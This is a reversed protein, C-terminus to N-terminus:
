QVGVSAINAKSSLGLVLQPAGRVIIRQIRAGNTAFDSRAARIDEITRELAIREEGRLPTLRGEFLALRDVFWREQAALHQSIAEPLDQGPAVVGGSTLTTNPGPHLHQFQVIRVGLDAELAALEAIPVPLRLEVQALVEGPGLLGSGHAKAPSGWSPVPNALGALAGVALAVLFLRLAFGILLPFVRGPLSNM